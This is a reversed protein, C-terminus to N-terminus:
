ISRDNDALALKEAKEVKKRQRWNATVQKAKERDSDAKLTAHDDEGALIIVVRGEKVERCRDRQFGGCEHAWKTCFPRNACKRPKQPAERTAKVFDTQGPATPPAVPLPDVPGELLPLATNLQPLVRQNHQAEVVKSRVRPPDALERLLVNYPEKIKEEALVILQNKRWKKHHNKLMSPLKPFVDGCNTQEKFETALKRWERGTPNPNNTIFQNFIRKETRTSIHLPPCKLKQRKAVFLNDGKLRPDPDGLDVYDPSYYLPGIGVAIFDKIEKFQGLNTHRPFVTEGFMEEIRAQIRDIYQLWPHGFNHENYRRIGTQVNYRHCVLLVVYHGSRAGIGWPGLAANLKQHLNEARTSGRLRLWMDLGNAGKGDWQYVSVDALEEFLGEMCKKEFSLLYDRLEDTYYEKLGKTEAILSHV